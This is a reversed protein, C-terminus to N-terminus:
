RNGNTKRVGTIVAIATDKELQQHNFEPDQNAKYKFLWELFVPANWFVIGRKSKPGNIILVKGMLAPDNVKAIWESQWAYFTSRKIPIIKLLEREPYFPKDFKFNNFDM